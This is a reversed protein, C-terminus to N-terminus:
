RNRVEVIAHPTPGILPCDVDSIEEDLEMYGFERHMLIEGLVLHSMQLALASDQQGHTVDLLYWSLFSPAIQNGSPGM